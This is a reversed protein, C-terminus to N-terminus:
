NEIIECLDEDVIYVTEGPLTEFCKKNEIVLININQFNLEKYFLELESLSFYIHLNLLVFCKAKSYKKTLIIFDLLTSLLNEKSLAPRFNQMKLLDIIELEDNFDFDYDYDSSLKELFSLANSKLNATDEFLYTHAYESLDEYVKKMFVSSFDVTFVNPVFYINGKFKIPSFNESFVINCEEPCCDYFAAVTNRYLSQNEIYLVSIKDASIEIPKSLFEFSVMM